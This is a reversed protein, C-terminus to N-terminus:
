REKLFGKGTQRKVRNVYQRTVKLNDAIEMDTMNNFYLLYLIQGKVRNKRYEKQIYRTFDLHLIVDDQFEGSYGDLQFGVNSDDDMSVCDVTEERTLYERCLKRYANKIVTVIYAVIKEESKGEPISIIARFLALNLEQLADEYEMFHIKRAYKMVLPCMQILIDTMAQPDGNKYKIIKESINNGRM